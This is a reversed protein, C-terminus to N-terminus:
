NEKGPNVFELYREIADLPKKLRASNALNGKSILKPNRETEGEKEKSFHQVQRRM